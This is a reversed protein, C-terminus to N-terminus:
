KWAGLAVACQVATNGLTHDHYWLLRSGQDCPYYYEAENPALNPNLINTFSDGHNGFPDWWAHPGGDSTWPVLGGHLHIDTRNRAGDGGMISTDVPLIHDAPLHNRFTIQVPSGRKTAIVGNLHRSWNPNLPDFGQGFGWLRTANPLDPHLKDEFQGIDITYHTVGPQWWDQKVQDPKAILIDTGVQRLPQIFKQLPGSNYITFVPPLYAKLKLPLALGAGVLASRKLFERRSVM